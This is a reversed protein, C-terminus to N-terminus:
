LHKTKEHIQKILQNISPPSVREVKLIIKKQFEDINLQNM